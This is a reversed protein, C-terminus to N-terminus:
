YTGGATPRRRTRYPRLFVYKNRSDLQHEDSWTSDRVINLKVGIKRRLEEDVGNHETGFISRRRIALRKSHCVSALVRRQFPKRLVARLDTRRRASLPLEHVPEPPDTTLHWSCLEVVYDGILYAALAFLAICGSLGLAILMRIRQNRVRRLLKERQSQLSAAIAADLADPTEISPIPM